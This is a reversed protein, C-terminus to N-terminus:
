RNDVKIIRILKDLFKTNNKEIFSYTLSSIVVTSIIFIALNGGGKLTYSFNMGMSQIIYQIPYHMLYISYSIKGLFILSNIRLIRNIITDFQLFTISIIVIIFILAMFDDYDHGSSLMVYCLMVISIIQLSSYFSNSVGKTYIVFHSLSRYLVVGICFGAMCRMMGANIYNIYEHHIGLRGFNVFIISYLFFALLLLFSSTKNRLWIFFILNVWLESSVSWSPGNWYQGAPHFGLGNIFLIQQIFTFLIGDKYYDSPFQWNLSLLVDNNKPYNVFIVTCLFLILLVITAFLHLPYLRTIRKVFFTKTSMDKDFYSKQLVIGSLIFFFDVALEASFFSNPSMYHFIAVAIAMIGRWSDLEVIHNNKM